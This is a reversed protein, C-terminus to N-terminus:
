RTGELTEVKSELARRAYELSLIRERFEKDQAVQWRQLRATAATRPMLKLKSLVEGFLVGEIYDVRKTVDNLQATIQKSEENHASWLQMSEHQARVIDQTRLSLFVVIIVSAAVVLAVITRFVWLKWTADSHRRTLHQPAIPTYTENM